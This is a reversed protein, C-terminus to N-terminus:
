PDTRLRISIRAIRDGTKLAVRTRANTIDACKPCRVELETKGEWRIGLEICDRTDLVRRWDQPTARCAIVLRARKEGAVGLIATSGLEEMRAEYTSDPSAMTMIRKWRPACAPACAVMVLMAAIVSALLGGRERAYPTPTM